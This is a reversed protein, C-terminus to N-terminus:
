NRSSTKFDVDFPVKPAKKNMKDLGLWNFVLFVAKLMSFHYGQYEQLLNKLSSEQKLYIIVYKVM